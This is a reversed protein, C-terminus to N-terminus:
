INLRVSYVLYCPKDHKLTKESLTKDVKRLYRTNQFKKM